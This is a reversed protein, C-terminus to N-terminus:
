EAYWDRLRVEVDPVDALADRFVETEQGRYHYPYVVGPRCDRVCDAAEEPTMTFPLNMTVFAIDIHELQRVNGPYQYAELM